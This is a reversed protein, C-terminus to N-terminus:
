SFYFNNFFKKKIHNNKNHIYKININTIQSSNIMNHKNINKPNIIGSIEIFHIKNNILIKKKGFIKLLGNRYIHKVIVTIVNNFYFKNFFKKNKLIKKKIYKKSCKNNNLWQLFNSVFFNKNKKKKKNIKYCKNIDIFQIKENFLVTILDGIKIFKFNKLFKKNNSKLSSFINYNKKQIQQCDKNNQIFKESIFFSQNCFFIINIFIFNRINFLFFNLM